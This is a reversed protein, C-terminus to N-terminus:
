GIQWKRRCGTVIQPGSFHDVLDIQDGQWGQKGALKGNTVDVVRLM